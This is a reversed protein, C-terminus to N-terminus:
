RVAEDLAAGIKIQEPSTEAASGSSVPTEGTEAATGGSEMSVRFEM